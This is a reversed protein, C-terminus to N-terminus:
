PVMVYVSFCPRRPFVAEVSFLVAAAGNKGQIRRWVGLSSNPVVRLHSSGSGLRLSAACNQTEKKVFDSRIKQVQIQKNKGGERKRAGGREKRREWDLEPIIKLRCRKRHLGDVVECLLGLFDKDKLSGIVYFLNSNSSLLM